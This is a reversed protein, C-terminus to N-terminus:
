KTKADEHQWLLGVERCTEKTNVFRGNGFTILCNSKDTVQETPLAVSQVQEMNVAVGKGDVAHVLIMTQLLVVGFRV